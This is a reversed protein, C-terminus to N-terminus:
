GDHVHIELTGFVIIVLMCFHMFVCVTPGHSHCCYSLDKILSHRCYIRVSSLSLLYEVPKGSCERSCVCPYSDYIKAPQNKMSGVQSCIVHFNCGWSFYGSYPLRMELSAQQKHTQELIIFLNREPWSLVRMRSTVLTFSCYFCFCTCVFSDVYASFGLTLKKWTLQTGKTQHVDAM